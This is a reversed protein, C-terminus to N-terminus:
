KCCGRDHLLQNRCHTMLCLCLVGIGSPFRRIFTCCWWTHCYQYYRFAHLLSCPDQKVELITCHPVYWCICCFGLVTWTTACLWSHVCRMIRNCLSGIVPIVTNCSWDDLGRRGGPCPFSSFSFIPFPGSWRDGCKQPLARLRAFAHPVGSVTCRTVHRAEHWVEIYREQFLYGWDKFEMVSIVAVAGLRSLVTKGVATFTSPDTGALQRALRTTVNDLLDRVRPL